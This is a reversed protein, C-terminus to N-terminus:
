PAQLGQYKMHVTCVCQSALVAIEIKKTKNKFKDAKENRNRNWNGEEEGNRSYGQVALAKKRQLAISVPVAALPLLARSWMALGSRQAVEVSICDLAKLWLFDFSHSISV